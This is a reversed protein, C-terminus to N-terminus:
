DFDYTWLSDWEGTNSNIVHVAVWNGTQCAAALMNHVYLNNATWWYGGEAPFVYLVQDGKELAWQCNTAHFYNWGSPVAKQSAARESNVDGDSSYPSGGTTGPSLLNQAPVITTSLCLGAGIISLLITKRM